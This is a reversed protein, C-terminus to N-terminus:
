KKWWIVDVLIGGSHICVQTFTFRPKTLFLVDSVPSLAPKKAGQQIINRCEKRHLFHIKPAAKSMGKKITEM